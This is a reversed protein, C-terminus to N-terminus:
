NSVVIFEGIAEEVIGTNQGTSHATPLRDRIYVWISAFILAVGIHYNIKNIIKLLLQVFEQILIIGLGACLLWFAFDDDDWEGNKNVDWWEYDDSPPNNPPCLDFQMAVSAEFQQIQQANTNMVIRALKGAGIKYLAFGTRMLEYQIYRTSMYSIKNYGKEWVLELEPDLEIIDVVQEGQGVYYADGVSESKDVSYLPSVNESDYSPRVYAVCVTTSILIFVSAISILITLHKKNKNM